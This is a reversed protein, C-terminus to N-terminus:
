PAEGSGTLDIIARSYVGPGLFYFVLWKTCGRWRGASGTLNINLYSVSRKLNGRARLNRGTRHQERQM